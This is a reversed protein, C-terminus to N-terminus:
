GQLNFLLNSEKLIKKLESLSTKFNTDARGAAAWLPENQNFGDLIITKIPQKHGFPPVGGVSHGTIEKVESADAMRIENKNLMKKLEQFDLRKDGPCLVIFFEDDAKIVLSKVINSVPVKHVNAAEQATTTLVDSKVPKIDLNNEKIFKEFLEVPM